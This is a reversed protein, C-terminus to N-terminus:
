RSYACSRGIIVEGKRAFVNEIDSWNNGVRSGPTGYDEDGKGWVTHIFVKANQNKRQLEKILEKVTM